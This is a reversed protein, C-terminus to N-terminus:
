RNRLHQKLRRMAESAGHTQLVRRASHLQNRLGASRFPLHTVRPSACFNALPRVAEQWNFQPRIRLLNARCAAAFDMDSAIRQLARALAEANEPPVVLGLTQRVVLEAFFDGETCVIPLGAWLCDLLRTRYAYHSELTARHTSVAAVSQALYNGREAYPVYEDIFQVNGSHAAARARKAAATEQHDESPHKGAFFVLRIEPAEKALIRMAALLTDPDMWDWIGGPWIIDKTNNQAVPAPPVAPDIGFPVVTVLDPVNARGNEALGGLWYDRQRKTACLFFDGRRLVDCLLLRHETVEAERKTAMLEFLVPDYIDFVLPIKARRLFPLRKLAYLPLVALDYKELRSVLSARANALDFQEVATEGERQSTVITPSHGWARLGHALGLVRIASGGLRPGIIDFTLILVRAVDQGLCRAM